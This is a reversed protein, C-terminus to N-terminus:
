VHSELEVVFKFAWNKGSTFLKIVSPAFFNWEIIYDRNLDVAKRRWTYSINLGLLRRRTVSKKKGKSYVHVQTHGGRVEVETKTSLHDMLHVFM